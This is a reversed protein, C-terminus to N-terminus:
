ATTRPYGITSLEAELEAFSAEPNLRHLLEPTLPRHEYIVAVDALAVVVDFYEAAYDVYAQPDGDLIALLEQSGDERPLDRGAHWRDDEL